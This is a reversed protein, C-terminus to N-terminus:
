TLEIELAAAAREIMQTTIHDPPSYMERMKRHFTTWKALKVRGAEFAERSPYVSGEYSGDERMTRLSFRQGQGFYAYARGVKTIEIDEIRPESYRSQRVIVMTQGIKIDAM